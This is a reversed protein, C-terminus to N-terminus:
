LARAFNPAPSATHAKCLNSRSLIASKQFKNCKKVKKSKGLSTCSVAVGSPCFKNVKKAKSCKKIPWTNSCVAPSSPPPPPLLPSPPPVPSPPAAPAGPPSKPPPSPSPPPTPPPPPGPMPPPPSPSPCPSGCCDSAVVGMGSAITSPLLNTGFVPTLCQTTDSSPIANLCDIFVQNCSGKPDAACCSDHAQCCSDVSGTPTSSLDCVSESTFSASCWGPGCYNGCLSFTSTQAVTPSAFAALITLRAHRSSM